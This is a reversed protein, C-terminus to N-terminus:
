GGVETGTPSDLVWQWEPSRSVIERILLIIQSRREENPDNAAMEVLPMVPVRDGNGRLGEIAVRWVRSEPDRLAATLAAVARDDGAAGLIGVAQERVLPEDDIVALICTRTVWDADAALLGPEVREADTELSSEPGSIELERRVPAQYQLFPDHWRHGRDIRGRALSLDSGADSQVGSNGAVPRPPRDSCISAGSQAPSNRDLFTNQAVWM